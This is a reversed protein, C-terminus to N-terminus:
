RLVQLQGAVGVNIDGGGGALSTLLPKSPIETQTSIIM